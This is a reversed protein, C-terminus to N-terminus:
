SKFDPMRLSGGGIGAGHGGTVPSNLVALASDLLKRSTVSTERALRVLRIQQVARALPTEFSFQGQKAKARLEEKLAAVDQQKAAMEAGREWLYMFRVRGARDTVFSAFLLALNTLVAVVVMKATRMAPGSAAAGASDALAVWVWAANLLASLALSLRFDVSLVLALTMSLAPWLVTSGVVSGERYYASLAEVNAGPARGQALPQVGYPLQVVTAAAAGGQAAGGQATTAAAAATQNLLALLDATYWSSSMRVLQEDSIMNAVGVAASFLACLAKWHRAVRRVAWGELRGLPRNNPALLRQGDSASAAGGAGGEGTGSSAGDRTAGMVVALAGGGGGGGGSGGGVEAAVVAAEGLGAAALKSPSGWLVVPAATLLLAAALAVLVRTHLVQQSRWPAGDQAGECFACAANLGAHLLVALSLAALLRRARPLQQRTCHGLFTAEVRSDSFSNDWVLSSKAHVRHPLFSDPVVDEVLKTLKRSMMRKLTRMSSSKRVGGGAAGLKQRGGAAPTKRGGSGRGSGDSRGSRPSSSRGYEEVEEDIPVELSLPNEIKFAIRGGAAAMRSKQCHTAVHDCLTADCYSTSTM